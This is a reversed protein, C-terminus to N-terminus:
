SRAARVAMMADRVRDAISTGAHLYRETSELHEHGMIIMIQHPPVGAEALRTGFTHRNHPIGCLPELTKLNAKGTNKPSRSAM